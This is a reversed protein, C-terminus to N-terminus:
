KSSNHSVLVSVCLFIPMERKADLLSTAYDQVYGDKASFIPDPSCM